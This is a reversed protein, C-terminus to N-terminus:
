GAMRFTDRATTLFAADRLPDDTSATVICARGPGALGSVQQVTLTRGSSVTRYTGTVRPSAPGGAPLVGFQVDGVPTGTGQLAERAEAALQTLDQAQVLTCYGGATPSYGERRDIALVGVGRQLAEALAPVAAAEPATAPVDVFRAPVEVTFLGRGPTLVRTDTPDATAAPFPPPAPAAGSCGAAVLAVALVLLLRRM